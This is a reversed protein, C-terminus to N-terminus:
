RGQPFIGRNLLNQFERDHFFSAFMYAVMVIILIPTLGFCIRFLIFLINAFLAEQLYAFALNSSLYLVAVLLMWEVIWLTTRFYKLYSISMIRGEGDRENEDPLKLIIFFVVLMFLFLVVFLSSYFISEPTELREGNYTIYVISSSYGGYASSNCEVYYYYHAVKTFNEKLVLFSYDFTESAIADQMEVIHAGTENYLHFYCNIGTNVPLGNSINNVHFDFSYSQNVSIINDQPTQINFGTTFQQTTTVPPVASLFPLLFLAFLLVFVIRKDM